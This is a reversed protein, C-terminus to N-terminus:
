EGEPGFLLNVESVTVAQGALAVRNGALRTHVTGGRASAQYGVLDLRGLRRAWFPALMCHTSGTVPDEPIGVSPAFFRSVFDVGRPGDPDSLATVALGRWPLAAILALDPVFDRVAQADDLEALAHLSGAAFTRLGLGVLSSPVHTEEPREVPFDMEILGEVLPDATDAEAPQCAIPGSRTHFRATGGLLHAAALTAHGCLSVEGVPTFWRLEHDGDPRPVVFATESLNMERAVLQMWDATPFRELLAVAAPNGSFPRDAFADVVQLRIM